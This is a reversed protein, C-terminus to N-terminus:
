SRFRHIRSQWIRYISKYRFITQKAPFLSFVGVNNSSAYEGIPESTTPDRLRSGGKRRVKTYEPEKNQNKNREYNCFNPENSIYIKNPCIITQPALSNPKIEFPKTKKEPHRPLSDTKARNINNQPKPRRLDPFDCPKQNIAVCPLVNFQINTSSFLLFFFFFPAEPLKNLVNSKKQNSLIKSRQM